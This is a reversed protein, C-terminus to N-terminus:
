GPVCMTEKVRVLFSDRGSLCRPIRPLNGDCLGWNVVSVSRASPDKKM